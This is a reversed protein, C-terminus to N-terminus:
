HALASPFQYVVMSKLQYSTCASRQSNNCSWTAPSCWEWNQFDILRAETYKLPWRARGWVGLSIGSGLRPPTKRSFNWETITTFTTQLKSVSRNNLLCSWTPFRHLRPFAYKPLIKKKKIQQLALIVHVSNYIISQTHVQTHKSITNNQKYILQTIISLSWM